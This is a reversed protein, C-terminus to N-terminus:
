LYYKFGIYVGLTEGFLAFESDRHGLASYFGSYIEVREGLGKVPKIYHTGILASGDVLNMVLYPQFTSHDTNQLSLWSNIYHRGQLMGKNGTNSIESGMLYKYDDFVKDLSSLGTKNSLLKIFDTQERWAAKSYGESQYYYEIGLVSFLDTTYQGGVALEYNKKDDQAYLSSPYKGSLVADRKERSFHRWQQNKHLAAEVNVVFQPTINYSDALALSPSDGLMVDAALRHNALRYDSYSLLYYESSNSRQNATWNSSSKYYEDISALKPIITFSFAYDRFEESIRGGWFPENYTSNFGPDFIRTPKFGAYYTTLLAAPSRLHFAGSHPRLKGGELSVNESLTANLKLRDILIKSRSDDEEFPGVENMPHYGFGYLSFDVALVDDIIDCSSSVNLSINNYANDTTYPNSGSIRWLSENKHTFSTQGMLVLQGNQQIEDATLCDAMGLLPILTLISLLVARLLKM